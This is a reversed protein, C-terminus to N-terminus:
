RWRGGAAAVFAEAEADDACSASLLIGQDGLTEFLLQLDEKRVGGAMRYHNHRARLGANCYYEALSAAKPPREVVEHPPRQAPRAVNLKLVLGKRDWWDIFHRRADDWNSKWM